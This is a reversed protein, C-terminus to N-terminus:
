RADKWKEICSNEQKYVGDSEFLDRDTFAITIHSMFNQPDFQSPEGGNRVYADFIKKRIKILDPSNVVLYYTQLKKNHNGDYAVGRGICIVKFHAKQIQASIAIHDIQSPTLYPKLINQYEPPTIVTIHSDARNKLVLNPNQKEFKDRVESVAKNDINMGLWYDPGYAPDNIHSVFPVHHHINEAYVSFVFLSFIGIVGLLFVRKM